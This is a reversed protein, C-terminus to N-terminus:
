VLDDFSTRRLIDSEICLICLSDLREQCMNSRLPNKIRKWQSFSRKASRNTIMLTLFIRMAIEVNPFVSQIKIVAVVRQLVNCWYERESNIQDELKSTLTFRGQRRILYNLM